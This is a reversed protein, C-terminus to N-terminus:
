LLDKLYKFEKSESIEEPNDPPYFLDVERLECGAIDFIQKIIIMSIQTKGAAAQQYDTTITEYFQIMLDVEEENLRDADVILGDFIKASLHSERYSWAISFLHLALFRNFDDQDDATDKHMIKLSAYEEVLYTNKTISLYINELEDMSQMSLEKGIKYSSEDDFGELFARTSYIAADLFGTEYHDAPLYAKYLNWKKISVNFFEIEDADFSDSEDTKKLCNYVQNNIHKYFNITYEILLDYTELFVENIFERLQHANHLAEDLDILREQLQNFKAAREAIPAFSSFSDLDALQWQIYELYSKALLYNRHEPSTQNVPIKSM